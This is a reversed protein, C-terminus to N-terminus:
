LRTQDVRYLVGHRIRGLVAYSRVKTRDAEDNAGSCLTRTDYWESCVPDM